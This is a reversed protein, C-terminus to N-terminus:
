EQGDEEDSLGDDRKPAPGKESMPKIDKTTASAVLRVHEDCTGSPERLCEGISDLSMRRKTDLDDSM